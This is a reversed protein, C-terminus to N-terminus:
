IALNPFIAVRSCQVDTGSERCAQSVQITMDALHCAFTMCLLMTVYMLNWYVRTAM